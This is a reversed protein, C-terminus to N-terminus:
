VRSCACFSKVAAELTNWAAKQMETKRRLNRKWFINHIEVLVALEDSESLMSSKHSENKAVSYEYSHKILEFPVCIAVSLQMLKEESIRGSVQGTEWRSLTQKSLLPCKAAVDDLTMDQANRGDRVFEGFSILPFTTLTDEEDAQDQQKMTKENAGKPTLLIMGCVKSFIGSRGMFDWDIVPIIRRAM